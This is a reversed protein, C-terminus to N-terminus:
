ISFYFYDHGTMYLHNEDIFIYSSGKTWTWDTLPMIYGSYVKGQYIISPHDTSPEFTYKNYVFVHNTQSCLYLHNGDIFFNGTDDNFTKYFGAENKGEFLINAHNSSAQGSYKDYVLIVKKNNNLLYLYNEDIFISGYNDLPKEYGSLSKGQYVISPHDSSPLGSMKDYVFILNKSPNVSYVHNSNKNENSLSSKYTVSINLLINM